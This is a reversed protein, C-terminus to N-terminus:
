ERRTLILITPIGGALLSGAVLGFTTLRWSWRQDETKAMWEQRNRTYTAGVGLAEQRLRLTSDAPGGLVSERTKWDWRAAQGAGFVAALAVLVGVAVGRSFGRRVQVVGAVIGLVLHIPILAWVPILSLTDFMTRSNKAFPRPSNRTPM